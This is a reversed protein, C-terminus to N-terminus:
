QRHVGPLSSSGLFRLFFRGVGESFASLGDSLKEWFSVDLKTDSSM